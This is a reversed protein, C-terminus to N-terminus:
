PPHARKSTKKFTERAIKSRSVPHSYNVLSFPSCPVSTSPKTASFSSGFPSLAAVGGLLGTAPCFTVKFRHYFCSHIKKQSVEHGTYEGVTM